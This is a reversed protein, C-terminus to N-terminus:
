QKGDGHSDRPDETLDKPWLFVVAITWVLVAGLSIGAHYALPFPLFGFVVDARDWQWYDQHLVLLGVIMLGLVVRRTTKNM